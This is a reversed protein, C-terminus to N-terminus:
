YKKLYKIAKKLLPISDQLLGIGRNCKNCLLARIKGTKHDHDVCLNWTGKKGTNFTGCIACKSDQVKLMEEYEELSIGYPRKLSYRRDVTFCREYNEKRWSMSRKDDCIKCTSKRGDTAQNHAYYEEFPKDKGCKTCVKAGRVMDTKIQEQTRRM